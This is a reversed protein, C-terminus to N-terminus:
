WRRHGRELDRRRALGHDVLAAPCNVGALICHPACATEDDRGLREQRIEDGPRPAVAPGGEERDLIRAAIPDRAGARVRREGKGIGGGTVPIALKSRIVTRREARTAIRDQERTPGVRNRRHPLLVLVGPVPHPDVLEAIVTALEHQEIQGAPVRTEHEAGREHLRGTQEPCRIPVREEHAVRQQREGSRVGYAPQRPPHHSLDIQPRARDRHDRRTVRQHRLVPVRPCARDVERHSGHRPIDGPACPVRRIALCRASPPKRTRSCPRSEDDVLAGVCRRPEGADIGLVVRCAGHEIRIRTQQRCM